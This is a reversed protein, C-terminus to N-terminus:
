FVELCCIEIMAIRNNADSFTYVFSILCRIQWILALVSTTLLAMCHSLSLIYVLSSNEMAANHCRFTVCFACKFCVARMYM